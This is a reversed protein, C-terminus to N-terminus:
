QKGLYQALVQELQGLDIPKSLHANMGSALSRRVDEDFANASMAIIPLTKVDERELRRIAQAADLGNMVPMMIDMFVMDYTGPPEAEIRELAEKGDYAEEILIGYEELITHLIEMNLANDEVALVRRGEYSAPELTKATECTVEQLPKLRVTFSFTSGKGYESDLEIQSDMMHVLRSCIALGLGTGQTRANESDDAQEFRQFIVKQKDERIGIGDDQVAFYVESTEEDVCTETAILCVHGGPNSYKIANSLLNVLVQKMRLEDCLFWDHTLRIQQTYTIDREAIRSEQLTELSNLLKMLNCEGYVLRMKGSEIKSMDLIDNLLGLLYNSSSEIKRLCDVRREASQGEKLAIETMGIIGNMPTRIEHSMRALFDSKAQASLDHQQLNIKNQILMAIEDFTKKVPEDALCEATVGFMLISGSYQGNDRMHFVLGDHEGIFAAITPDARLEDTIPLIEQMKKSEIYNQYESGTCHVMEDADFQGRLWQYQCVNVLYERNFRTIVLNTIQYKERLKLALMDLVVTIEKGKEFLNIALSSLSMQKIKEYFEIKGFEFDVPEMQATEPLEEYVTLTRKSCKSKRLALKVRRIGETIDETGSMHAMGCRFEPLLYNDHILGGFQRASEQIMCRADDVPLQPLWILLQDAGARICVTNKVARNACQRVLINSLQEVLLDGFILGYQEDIRTFAVIDVLLLMGDPDKERVTQVADLGYTLRYFATTSDYIQKNRQEEELLKRHHINHVCGVIRSNEGNEDQMVTGYLNVWLYEEEPSRRLRFDINIMGIELKAIRFVKQQDLPHICEVNHVYQPYKACDWSGDSGNSNVLELMREDRRYTFFLDRSSEVAIRYREKEELMREEIRTQTDTLTEIVDHLENLEIINSTGFSHIGDVGGRVSEVLRYVPKTVYRILLVVLAAALVVSCLIAIIMRRYVAEGMGYISEETVFGCISWDHDAYPVNNGYLNLSKQICYIKQKGVKAGDVLYLDEDEQRHLTLTDKDRTVNEYLMGKGLIADCTGDENGVTLAYGANMSRDLDSVPFYSSIYTTSVEIGAIGYVVNEYVLPISYTLMKHDDIYSDELVFPRAWYGLNEPKTELHNKAAQYPQYYFDDAARTGKGELSFDTSWSNDLPIDLAYALQKDGREMLLDAYATSIKQPDSDRVFFGQYSAPEDIPSDNALILFVGGTTNYQLATVLEDFTNELYEKQADRDALFQGIDIGRQALTLGLQAYLANSEKYISRWNEIMDNELVVQRNEVTHNDMRIVNNEMNTKVGSLILTLFLIIGQLLVIGMVPTLFITLLTRKKKMM